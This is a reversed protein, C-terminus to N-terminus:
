FNVRYFPLVFGCRYAVSQSHSGYQWLFPTSKVGLCSNCGRCSITSSYIAFSLVEGVLQGHYQSPPLEWLNCEWEVPCTMGCKRISTITPPFWIRRGEGGEWFILILWSSPWSHIFSLSNGCGSTKGGGLWGLQEMKHTIMLLRSAGFHDLLQLKHTAVRRPDTWIWWWSSGVFLLLFKNDARM